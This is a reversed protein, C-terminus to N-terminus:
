LPPVLAQDFLKRWLDKQIYVQGLLCQLFLRTGFIYEKLCDFNSRSEFVSLALDYPVSSIKYINEYDDIIHAQSTVIADLPVLAPFTNSPINLGTEGGSLLYYEKEPDLMSMIKSINYSIAFKGEGEKCFPDGVSLNGVSSWRISELSEKITAARLLSSLRSEESGLSGLYVARMYELATKEESLRYDLAKKLEKFFFSADDLGLGVLLIIEQWKPDFLHGRFLALILRETINNLIYRSVYYEQFSLHAFKFINRAQEVIIGHNIEISKLVSEGDIDDFRNRMTPINEIYEEIESALYSKPLFVMSKEFSKAAIRSLMDEKRKKTLGKYVEERRVNKKADWRVLLVDLTESYLEARNSPFARREEFVLCLMGLTLPRKALEVISDEEIIIEYCEESVEPSDFYNYIYTEIQQDEFDCLEVDILFDFHQEYDAIRCSLIYKNDIFHDAFSVIEGICKQLSSPGVEDLGDLLIMCKGSALLKTLIERKETEVTWPNRDIIYELLELGSPAFDRLTIFIPFLGENLKGSAAQLAAYQLFTTKGSGPGGLVALSGLESLVKDGSKRDPETLYLRKETSYEKKLEELSKHQRCLLDQRIQLHTYMSNFPLPKTSGFIRIDGYKQLLFSAYKKNFHRFKKVKTAENSVWKVGTSITDVLLKTMAEVIIKEPINNM